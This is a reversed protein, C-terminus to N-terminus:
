DSDSSSEDSDESTNQEYVVEEGNDEKVEPLNLEKHSQTNEISVEDDFVIKKNSVVPLKEADTLEINIENDNIFLTGEISIVRGTTYIHKIKFQLKGDDIRKSNSDLWYGPSNSMFKNSNNDEETTTTESSLEEENDIFTWDEPIFNKKINANFADHILLGIHSTSQIFVNGEIIDGVRPQWIYFDVTVWNFAFPTDNTIKVLKIEEEETDDNVSSNIIKLNDYGLIVGDTISNYKMLMPNLHQKIIGQIPDNAYLPAISVYLSFKSRIICNSLGTKDDIPNKNSPKYKKIFKNLKINESSRKIGSMNSTSKECM